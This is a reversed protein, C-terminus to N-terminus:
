TRTYAIQGKQNQWKKNRVNCSVNTIDTVSNNKVGILFACSIHSLSYKQKNLSKQYNLNDSSNFKDLNPESRNGKGRKRAKGCRTVSMVHSWTIDTVSSNKM